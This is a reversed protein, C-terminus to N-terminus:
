EEDSSDDSNWKNAQAVGHPMNRNLGSTSPGAHLQALYEPPIEGLPM